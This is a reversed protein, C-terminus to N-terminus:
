RKKRDFEFRGLKFHHGVTKGSDSEKDREYSVNRNFVKEAINTVVKIPEETIISNKEKKYEEYSKIEEKQEKPDLKVKESDDIVPEEKKELGEDEKEFSDELTKIRSLKILHSTPNIQHFM